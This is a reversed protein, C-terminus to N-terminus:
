SGPAEPWVIHRPYGPQMTVDRLAQRYALWPAPVPRGTEAARLSVWDCAQLLAARAARAEADLRERCPAVDVPAHAGPTAVDIRCAQADWRGPLAGHGAPTNAALWREPGAYHGVIAGTDQRYITWAGASM